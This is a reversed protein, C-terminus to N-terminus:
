LLWVVDWFIGNKLVCIKWHSNTVTVSASLWYCPTRLLKPLMKWAYIGHVCAYRTHIRYGPVYCWTTTQTESSSVASKKLLCLFTSKIIEKVTIEEEEARFLLANYEDASKWFVVQKHSVSKCRWESFPSVTCEESINSTKRRSAHHPIRPALRRSQFYPSEFMILICSKLNERRYSHLIGDEKINCPIARTPVSTESSRIAQMTLTSLIPSDNRVNNRVRLNKGGQHHLHHSGGFRRNKCPGYPTIDFFVTKKMITMSGSSYNVLTLSSFIM